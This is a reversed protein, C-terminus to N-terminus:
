QRSLLHHHAADPEEGLHVRIGGAERGGEGERELKEDRDVAAVESRAHPDQHERREAQDAQAVDVLHVAQLVQHRDADVADGRDPEGEGAGHDPAIGADHGDRRHEAAEGSRTQRATEAPREDAGGDHDDAQHHRHREEDPESDAQRPLLVRSFFDVNRRAVDMRLKPERPVHPTRPYVVMTVDVGLEELIRYLMTGQSLPVRDDAEGHQILVPASTKKLNWIPSHARLLEFDLPAHRMEDLAPPEGEAQPPGSFYHPLFDRIDSTGHFSLLDVVPAGISIARFRDSQGIAWAAMFGGYSWGMLGMREPDAIGGAILEDIGANIDIWDMGGWDNRNAKRFAEGYGGTGRPNPRFVAFGREAFVHTPYVHGLYGLFGQDFRSAPGGHVFTLLPYRRGAEYGVPLTLFGDIELGDKPNKWRILRTQGLTRDRFADNHHTLRTIALPASRENAKGRLTAIAVEPPETLSQHVFAVVGRAAHFDADGIMGAVNSVNAFGSGDRGVRFIQSTTDLPGEFWIATADASWAIEDPTRGYQASIRRPKGGTASVVCIEHEVLWDHVGGGSTFAIWKGDPSFRPGRDIGPQVVVPRIDGSRVAVSWIDSRYLDDLGLGPARTFALSTGDPSWDFSLVSWPGNTLRRVNRTGVDIVHLHAHRRSEGVVRADDREKARKEEEESPPDVTTFAISKGDPSWEFTRIATKESTLKEAEGGDPDILWIATRGDRDSLFAIRRGDPSWRPHQDDGKSRTLQVNRAGASDVLWVDSDYVSRELDAVTVVYAIRKADPAIRPSSVSPMTAYDTITLASALVLAFMAGM